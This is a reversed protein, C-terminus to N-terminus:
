ASVIEAELAGDKVSVVSSYLLDWANHYQALTVACGHGIRSQDDDMWIARVPTKGHPQGNKGPTNLWLQHSDRLIKELTATPIIYYDPAASDPLDVIVTFDRPDGMDLFLTGDKKCSWMFSYHGTKVRITVFVPADARRALIDFGRSGRATLSALWGRRMLEGCVFMEGAHGRMPPPTKMKM